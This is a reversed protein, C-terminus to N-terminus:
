LLSDEELLVNLTNLSTDWQLKLPSTVKTGWRNNANLRGMAVVRPGDKSLIPHSQKQTKAPVCGKRSESAACTAKRGTGPVMMWQGYARLEESGVRDGTTLHKGLETLIADIEETTFGAQM